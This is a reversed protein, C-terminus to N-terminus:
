FPRIMENRERRQNTQSARMKKREGKQNQSVRRKRREGKRKRRREEEEKEREEGPLISSLRSGERQGWSWANCRHAGPGM